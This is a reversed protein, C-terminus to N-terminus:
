DHSIEGMTYPTIFKDCTRLFIEKKMENFREQARERIKRVVRVATSLGGGERIKIKGDDIDNLVEHYSSNRFYKKAKEETTWVYAFNSGIWTLRASKGIAGHNFFSTHQRKIEAKTGEIGIAWHFGKNDYYIKM